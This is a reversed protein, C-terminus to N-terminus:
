FRFGLTFLFYNSYYSVSEDYERVSYYTNEILHEQCSNGSLLYKFSFMFNKYSFGIEPSLAIGISFDNYEYFYKHYSSAFNSHWRYESLPISIGVGLDMFISWNNSLRGEYNIGALIPILSLPHEGDYNDIDGEFNVYVTEVEALLRIDFNKSPKFKYKMNAFYSFGADNPSIGVHCSYEYNAVSRRKTQTKSSPSQSSAGVMQAFSTSAFLVCIITVILKKM